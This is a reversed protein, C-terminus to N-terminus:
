PLKKIEKVYYDLEKLSNKLDDIARHAPKAESFKKVGLSEAYLKFSSVDLHRYTLYREIGTWQECVFGRDFHVSNGALNAKNEALNQYLFTHFQSQATREDLGTKILEYLGSKKHMELAVGEWGVNPNQYVIAEWQAYPVFDEKTLIAGCEIIRCSKPNLGTTELDLFLFDTM